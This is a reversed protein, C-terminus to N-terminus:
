QFLYSRLVLLIFSLYLVVVGRSYWQIATSSISLLLILNFLFLTFKPMRIESIKFNFLM